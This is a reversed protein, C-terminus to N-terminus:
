CKGDWDTYNKNEEKKFLNEIKENICLNKKAGFM